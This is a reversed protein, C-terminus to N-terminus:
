RKVQNRKERKKEEGRTAVWRVDDYVPSPWGGKKVCVCSRKKKKVKFVNYM